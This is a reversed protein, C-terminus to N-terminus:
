LRNPNSYSRVFELSRWILGKAVRVQGYWIPVAGFSEFFKRSGDLFGSQLDLQAVGLVESHAVFQAYLLPNASGHAHNARVSFPAYSKQSDWLLGGVSQIKNSDNLVVYMEGIEKEQAYLMLEFIGNPLISSKERFLDIVQNEYSSTYRHVSLVEKGRRLRRRLEASYKQQENIFIAQTAMARAHPASSWSISPNDFTYVGYQVGKPLVPITVSADGLILPGLYATCRPLSLYSLKARKVLSFPWVWQASNWDDDECCAKWQPDVFDLWVPQWYLPLYGNYSSAWQRYAEQQKAKM